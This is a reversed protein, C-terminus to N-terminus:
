FDECSLWYEIQIPRSATIWNTTSAWAAGGAEGLIANGYQDYVIDTAPIPTTHTVVQGNIPSTWQAVLAFQVGAVQAAPVVIMEISGVAPRPVQIRTGWTRTSTVDQCYEVPTNWVGGPPWGGPPPSAHAFGPALLILAAVTAGVFDAIRNRM